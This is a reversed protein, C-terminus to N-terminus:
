PFKGLCAICTVARTPRDKAHWGPGCRLRGRWDHTVGDRDTWSRLALGREIRWNPHCNWRAKCIRGLLEMEDRLADFADGLLATVYAETNRVREREEFEELLRDAPWERAAELDLAM